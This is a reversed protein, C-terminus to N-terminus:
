NSKYAVLNFIDEIQLQIHRSCYYLKRLSDDDKTYINRGNFTKNMETFVGEIARLQCEREFTVCLCNELTYLCHGCVPENAQNPNVPPQITHIGINAEM